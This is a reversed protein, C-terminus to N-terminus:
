RRRCSWLLKDKKEFLAFYKEYMDNWYNFGEPTNDWYFMEGLLGKGLYDMLDLVDDFKDIKRWVFHHELCNNVFKGYVGLRKLINIKEQLEM